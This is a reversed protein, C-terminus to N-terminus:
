SRKLTRTTPHFQLWFIDRRVQIVEGTGDLGAETLPRDAVTGSQVISGAVANKLESAHLPSIRQVEPVAALHSVLGMLCAMQLEDSEAGRIGGAGRGLYLLHEMGVYM